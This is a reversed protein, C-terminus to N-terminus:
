WKQPLERPPVDGGISMTEAPSPGLIKELIFKQSMESLKAFTPSVFLDEWYSRNMPSLYFIESSIELACLTRQQVPMCLKYPTKFEFRVM